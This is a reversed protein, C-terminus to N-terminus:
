RNLDPRGAKPARGTVAFQLEAPLQELAAFGLQDAAADDGEFSRLSAEFLQAGLRRWELHEKDFSAVTAGEVPLALRQTFRAWLSRGVMIAEGRANGQGSKAGSLEIWPNEDRNRLAKQFRAEASDLPGVFYLWLGAPHSLYPNTRDPALTLSRMRRDAVSVDLGQPGTHGVLAISPQGANFDGRWLTTRPFVDLFSAAIGDFESESLQYLPIWQCYLGGPALVRRVTEFSERTYLSAEGRRWPVVLDGVVVDFRDRTVGLYRRADEARVRVRPDSMVGLNAEAFWERASAVVEPVLELAQAEIVPHFRVASLSIGTGLGLFAVREPREHLLLPIHGQLREDGAATSGGLLYFNNLKLRRQGAHEIVGVTGFAGDRVDLVRDTELVKMRPLSAPPSAFLLGVTVLSGFALTQKVARGAERAAIIAAFLAVIGTACVASWLGLAPALVFLGLLPGSAAGATNAALIMGAAPGGAGTSEGARQLLSPLALGLLVTPVFLVAFALGAVHGQNSWLDGGTIYDLGTMRVFIAPLLAVWWGAGGWGFVLLTSAPAGRELIARALAAGAALGSLFVALVTAFSYISNEHVQAFMRTALAETMLTILGSFFAMLLLAAGPRTGPLLADAEVKTGEPPPERESLWLAAMGVAVSAAVLALLAGSAGFRPLLLVPVALAGAAAGLTNVAYLGGAHVGLDQARAAVFQALVPLTGGMCTAPVLVAIISVLVELGLLTAPSGGSAEYLRSYLPQAARLLPDVALASIGTVIELRGFARLPSLFRLALRGFISSGLGLGVFYAVLAAGVAPAASGLLVAFRRMWLVEYGLAIAGSLFFLAHLV